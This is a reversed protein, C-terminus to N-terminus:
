VKIDILTGLMDSGAQVVKASAQVQNKALSQEVVSKEISEPGGQEPPMNAKAIQDASRNLMENGRQIGYVGSNMVSSIM